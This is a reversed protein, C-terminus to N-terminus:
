SMKLEWMIVYYNIIVKDKYEEMNFGFFYYVSCNNLLCVESQVYFYLIFDVNFM